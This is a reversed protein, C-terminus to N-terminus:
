GKPFLNQLAAAITYGEGHLRAVQCGAARLQEEASAPVGDGIITVYAAQAADSISYGATVGEQTLYHTVLALALRAEAYGPLGPEPPEALLLYHMMPKATEMSLKLDRIVTADEDLDIDGILPAGEGLALAYRGGSLGSFRYAGLEDSVVRVVEAGDHLLRVLVGPVPDGDVNFVRGQLVGRPGAAPWLVDVVQEREGDLMINGAVQGLGTVELTYLGAPLNVFRFTGDALTRMEAVILAARRLTVLVQAQPQGAGDAVRGRVVSRWGQAMDIAALQLCNEGTLVLDSIAQSGVELRYHGPPLNEFVFNGKRDLPVQRTWGWTPPAFLVAVAGEPPSLVKGALQSRMPFLLRFLTGPEVLIDDAVVGVDALTLRYHGAPLNPFAFTGDAALTAQLPPRDGATSELTLLAGPAGGPVSGDVQAPSAVPQLRFNIEYAVPQGERGPVHATDLNDAVDSPWDGQVVRLNFLGPTHLFEYSGAPKLPDRGTTEVPFVTGPAALEWRMELKVGNLPQGLADTVTGYFIRRGATEEPTLLRRTTVAYRYGAAAGTTLRLNKTQWGDLAIGAVTIGAVSLRYTGLPLGAFRFTGDAGTSVRGVEVGDRDLVAEIGAVPAGAPTQVLGTLSSNRGGTLRILVPQGPEESAVVGRRVIGWPPVSLDYVGAELREFHFRGDAATVVNAVEREKALLLVNLEALPEDTDARTVRGVVSAKWTDGVPVSPLAKLRAVAPLEGKLNFDTNWWDTYWCQSEWIPALFGMRYNAILWHCMAFYSEPCRLGHIERTGQMFETIAVVWDAHTFPDVRPYRRDQKWGVVPGGETSIIPVRYGLARVVMQDMLLFYLWCSPDDELTAGPNKDTRRWENILERPRGEWAWSGLRDYEEQSVPQGEQNVPDYPYDLPHNLTYNHIAVWAGKEFIDARGRAVIAAVFDAKTGAATAPVAPLGGAAQVKDADIIFNDVVVDVWNPPRRGGQWEMDLDPENNTEFYRVGAAVLRRITEEERGGIHGPNPELRYLRVVPMIDAALLRQCLELSSGGGDDLLKVWKIKMAQLESIWFDLAAGTPHYVSASWHIGRRNDDKPRPYDELRM